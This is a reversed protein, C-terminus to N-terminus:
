IVVLFTLPFVMGQCVLPVGSRSLCSASSDAEDRAKKAWEDEKKLGLKEYMGDEAPIQQAGEEDCRKEIQILDL